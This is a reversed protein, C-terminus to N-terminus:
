TSAIDGVIVIVPDSTAQTGNEVSPKKYSGPRLRAPPPRADLLFLRIEGALKHLPLAQRRVAVRHAVRLAATVIDWANWAAM